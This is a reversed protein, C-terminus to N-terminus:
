RLADPMASHDDIWRAAIVKADTFQAYLSSGGFLEGSVGDNGTGVAELVQAIEDAEYEAVSGLEHVSCEAEKACEARDELPLDRVEVELVALLMRKPLSLNESM